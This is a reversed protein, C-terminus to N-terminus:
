IKNQKTGNNVKFGQQKFYWRLGFSAAIIGFMGFQYWYPLEAVFAVWRMAKDEDFWAAILPAFWIITIFEDKWSYRAQRQAELDWDQEGTLAQRNYSAEAENKSKKLDIWSTFVSSIGQTIVSWM